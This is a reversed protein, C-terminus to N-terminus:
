KSGTMFGDCRMVMSGDWIHEFVEVADMKPFDPQLRATHTEISITCQGNHLELWSQLFQEAEAKEFLKKVKAVFFFGFASICSIRIGDDGHYRIISRRATKDDSCLEFIKEGTCSRLALMLLTDKIEGLDNQRGIQKDCDNIKQCFNDIPIDEPTELSGFCTQYFNRSYVECSERLYSLYLMRASAFSIRFSSQILLIIDKDSCCTIIRAAIKDRLWEGAANNHVSLEKQIQEHCCCTYPLKLLYEILPMGGTNTTTHLKSIFDTDLIAFPSSL